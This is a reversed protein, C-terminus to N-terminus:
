APRGPWSGPSSTKRIAAGFRNALRAREASGTGFPEAWPVALDWDSPEAPGSDEPM